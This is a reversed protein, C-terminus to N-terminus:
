SSPSTQPEYDELRSGILYRENKIRECLRKFQKIEYWCLHSFLYLLIIVSHARWQVLNKVQIDFDWLLAVTHGAAYPIFLLSLLFLFIPLLTCHVFEYLNLGVIGQRYARDIDRQIWTTPGVMLGGITLKLVFVGVAWSQWLVFVPSQNLSVRLPLLIALDFVLGLLLPLVFVVVVALVCAKLIAQVGIMIRKKIMSWGRPIWTSAFEHLRVFSMICYFGILFTYLDYVIYPTNSSHSYLVGNAGFLVNVVQRGIFIPVAFITTFVLALTGAFVFLLLVIRISFFTPRFYPQHENENRGLGAQMHRQDENLANNIAERNAVHQHLVIEDDGLLYSRIGLVSGIINACWKIGAKIWSKLSNQEILGSIILQVVCLQMPFEGIPSTPNVATNLPLFTPAFIRLIQVPMWAIAIITSGFITISFLFRRLHRVLPLHIMENIPNFNPDNLNRLFWLVGPRLVERLLMLSHALYFVFVIGILWHMFLFVSPSSLYSEKKAELTSNFAKLSCIDFWIGCLLPFIGLEVLFLLGVKMIIYGVGFMWGIPWQLKALQLLIHGCLLGLAVLIYGCLATLVGEFKTALVYHNMKFTLLFFHGLHYPCFAFVLIILTNLAIVWFVHEIFLLSGDLGLIREWTPDDGGRELDLGNWNINNVANPDPALNNPPAPIENANNNNDVHNEDEAQVNVAEVNVNNQQAIQNQLRQRPHPILWAPLEGNLIQVRLWVLCIFAFLTCSVVGYGHFIDRGIDKTSIMNKPLSTLASVTGAFVCKYIRSATLPVIILWAMAVLTYHIWYKIATFVSKMLGFALDHLPLHTPMDPSYIPKFIYKHNCLECHDKKSHRLWQVLCEQHVHRISGTCICPHFLPKDPSGTARCVRCIDEDEEMM